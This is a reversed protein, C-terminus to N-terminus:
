TRFIVQGNRRVEHNPPIPVGAEAGGDPTGICRIWHRRYPEYVAFNPHTSQCVVVDWYPVTIDENLKAIVFVSKHGDHEIVMDGPKLDKWTPANM